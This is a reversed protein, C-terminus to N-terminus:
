DVDFLFTTQKLLRQARVSDSQTRATKSSGAPNEKRLEPSVKPPTQMGLATRLQHIKVSSFSKTGLDAIMNSGPVHWALWEGSSVLQRVYASSFRLHGTRSNGGENELVGLAAKSDCWGIKRITPTLEHLVDAISEGATITNVFEVMESEAPSLTVLQQKGSRWFM